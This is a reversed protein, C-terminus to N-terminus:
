KKCVELELNIPISHSGGVKSSCNSFVGQELSLIVEDQIESDLPNYYVNLQYAKNVCDGSACVKLSESIIKEMEKELVKCAMEENLCKENKWCSKVLNQGSKYFPVFGVACPTTYQMSAELLHSVEISTQKKTQGRGLSLSLLILGIITVIVVILVFGMIEHQAKKNNLVM